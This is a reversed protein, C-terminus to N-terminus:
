FSSGGSLLKKREMDRRRLLAKRSEDALLLLPTWAFLFVWYVLPFSATWFLQQLAPVYIIMSVILLESGIGIWIMRNRFLGLRFTSTRETRQTFLNGIQTTVVAGLTMATASYYLVGTSPLDLWQGWYGNTWYWFYFAAMCALSQTLGLYGLSRALMGRTVIHDHLNRPPREMVGPEPPEAGLALAWAGSEGALPGPFVDTKGTLPDVAM